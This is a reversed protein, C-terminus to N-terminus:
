TVVNYKTSVNYKVRDLPSLQTTHVSQAYFAYFLVKIFAAPTKNASRNITGM